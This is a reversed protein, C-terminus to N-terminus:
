SYGRGRPLNRPIRPDRMRPLFARAHRTARPAARTGRGTARSSRKAEGVRTRGAGDRPVGRRARSPGHGLRVVRRARRGLSRAGRRARGLLRRLPLSLRRALALRARRTTARRGVRRAARVGRARRARGQLSELLRPPRARGVGVSAANALSLAHARRSESGGGRARGRAGGVGDTPAGVLARPGGEDRVVGAGDREAVNGEGLGAGVEETREDDRLGRARAVDVVDVGGERARPSADRRRHCGSLNWRQIPGLSAPRASRSRAICVALSTYSLACAANVARVRGAHVRRSAGSPAPHRM